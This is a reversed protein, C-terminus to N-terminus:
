KQKLWQIFEKLAKGRHSLNNKEQDTLEAMTKNLEPIKFIPDYGFGNNGKLEEIILGRVESQVEFLIDGNPEVLVLACVFKATREYKPVNQLNKLVKEIKAMPTAAYRASHIGPEGGLADVVLGSDDALAPKGTLKAAEHAKIYANALFTKGDEIPNFDNGVPDLRLQCGAEQLKSKIEKVKNPNSTALIISEM